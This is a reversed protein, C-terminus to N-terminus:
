TPFVEGFKDLRDSVLQARCNASRAGRNIGAIRRVVPLDSLCALDDCGFEVDSNPNGTRNLM